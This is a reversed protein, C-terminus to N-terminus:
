RRLRRGAAPGRPPVAARNGDPVRGRGPHWRVRARLPSPFRWRCLARARRLRLGTSSSRWTSDLLKLRLQFGALGSPQGSRLEFAAPTQAAIGVAYQLFRARSHLFSIIERRHFPRLIQLEFDRRLDFRDIIRDFRAAGAALASRALRWRWGMAADDCGAVPLSPLRQM